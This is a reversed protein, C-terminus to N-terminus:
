VSSGAIKACSSKGRPRTTEFRFTSCSMILHTKGLGMSNVAPHDATSPISIFSNEPSRDTMKEEGHLETEISLVRRHSEQTLFEGQIPTPTNGDSEVHITESNTARHHLLTVFKPALPQSSITILRQKIDTSTKLV